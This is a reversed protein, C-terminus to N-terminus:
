KIVEQLTNKMRKSFGSARGRWTPSHLLLDCFPNADGSWSETFRTNGFLDVERCGRAFAEELVRRYVLWGPSYKEYDEVYSTKLVFVRDGYVLSVLGCIPQGDLLLMDAEAQGARALAMVATRYFGALTPDRAIVEGGAAKWSREEIAFYQDLAAAMEDGRYKRWECRGQEALRRELREGKERTQRSLSRYYEQWPRDALLRNNKWSREIVAYCGRRTAESLLAQTFPSDTSLGQLRAIDWQSRRAIWFDVVTSAFQAADGITVVSARQSHSNVWCKLTRVPLSYYRQKVLQTFMAGTLEGNADRGVLIQESGAAGFHRWWSDLWAFSLLPSADCATALADDWGAACHQVFEPFSLCAIQSAQAPSYM